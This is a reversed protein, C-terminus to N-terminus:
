SVKRRLGVLGLLGSGMLVITMPEPVVPQVKTVLYIGDNYDWDHAARDEWALLYTDATLTILTKQGGPLDIYIQQGALDALHYSLMHDAQDLNLSPDSFWETPEGGAYPTSLLSFGFNQDALTNYGGPYPDDESGDGLYVGYSGYSSQPDTIYTATGPLGPQFVGLQNSNWAAVGIVAFDSAEGDVMDLWYNDPSVQYADAEANSGLGLSSGTVDLFVQNIASYVQITENNVLSSDTPTIAWGNVAGTLIVAVAVAFVTIFKKM